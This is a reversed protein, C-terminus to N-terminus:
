ENTGEENKINRIEEVMEELMNALELLDEKKRILPKLSLACSILDLKTSLYGCEFDINEIDKKCKMTETRAVEKDNLLKFIEKVGGTEYAMLVMLDRLKDDGIFSKIIDEM